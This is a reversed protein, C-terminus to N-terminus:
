EVEYVKKVFTCIQGVVDDLYKPKCEPNVNLIVSLLRGSDVLLRNPIFRKFQDLLTKRVDVLNGKSCNLLRHAVTEPTGCHTCSSTESKKRYHRFRCENLKNADIRLRTIISRVHPSKVLNM